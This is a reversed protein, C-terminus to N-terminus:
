GQLKVTCYYNLYKQSHIKGRFDIDDDPDRNKGKRQIKKEAIEPSFLPSERKFPKKINM